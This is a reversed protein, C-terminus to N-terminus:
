SKSYYGAGHLFYTLLYTLLYVSVNKFAEGLTDRLRIENRWSNYSIPNITFAVLCAYAIIDKYCHLRLSFIQLAASNVYGLSM